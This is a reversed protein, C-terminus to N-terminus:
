SCWGLGERMLEPDVIKSWDITSSDITSSHEELLANVNTLGEPTALNWIEINNDLAIQYATNTGGRVRDSGDKTRVPLAYLVTLDSPDKLSPGLVQVVNRSHLALTNNNLGIISGRARIVLDRCQDRTEEMLNQFDLFTVDDVYRQRTPSKPLWAEFSGLKFNPDLLAGYYFARDAGYADGSRQKYGLESFLRGLLVMLILAEKPTDRSGVVTVTTQPM